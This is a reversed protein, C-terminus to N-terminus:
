KYLLLKHRILVDLVLHIKHIINDELWYNTARRLVVM